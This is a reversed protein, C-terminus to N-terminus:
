AADYFGELVVYDWWIGKKPFSVTKPREDNQLAQISDAWDSLVLAEALPLYGLLPAIVSIHVRRGM